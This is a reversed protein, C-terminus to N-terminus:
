TSVARALPRGSHFSMRFYGVRMAIFGKTLVAPQDSGSSKEPLRMTAVTILRGVTPGNSSCDSSAWSIYM